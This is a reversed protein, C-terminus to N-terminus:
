EGGAFFDDEFVKVEPSYGTGEVERGGAMTRMPPALLTPGSAFRSSSNSMEMMNSAAAVGAGEYGM